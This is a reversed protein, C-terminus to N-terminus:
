QHLGASINDGSSKVANHTGIGVPGQFLSDIIGKGRTIDQGYYDATQKEEDVEVIVKINVSAITPNTHRSEDQEQQQRLYSPWAPSLVVPLLTM